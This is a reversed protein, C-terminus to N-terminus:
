GAGPVAAGWGDFKCRGHEHGAAVMWSVWDDLITPSVTTTQTSGVVGDDQAEVDYDTEQRLFAVLAEADAKGPADYSFDLRLETDETVGHRVLARWTERNMAQQHAIVDSPDWM